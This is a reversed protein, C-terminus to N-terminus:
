VPLDGLLDYHEVLWWRILFVEYAHDIQFILRLILFYRSCLTPRPLIAFRSHDSCRCNNLFLTRFAESRVLSIQRKWFCQAVGILRFKSIWHVDELVFNHRQHLLHRVPGVLCVLLAKWGLLHGLDLLLERGRLLKLRVILLRRVWRM